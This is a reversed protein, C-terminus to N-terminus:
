LYGGIRMDKNGIIKRSILVISKHASIEWGILSVAFCFLFFLTNKATRDPMSLSCKPTQDSGNGGGCPSKQGKTVQLDVMLM